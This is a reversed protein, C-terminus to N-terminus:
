ANSIERLEDFMAKQSMVSHDILERAQAVYYSLQENNRESSNKLALEIKDLSETLASNSETFSTMANAFVDGMVTMESANNALEDAAESLKGVESGVHQDFRESINDLMETSTGVLSAIAERQSESSQTLSGALVDLEQMIKQREELLKNDREVNNSIETRLQAIVEAAAKPTESATAILRTMPQELSQGLDDLQKAFQQQLANMSETASEARQEEQSHLSKLDSTLQSSLEDMRSKFSALWTEENKARQEILADSAAILKSFEEQVKLSHQQNDLLIQERESALKEVLKSNEALVAGSKETWTDSVEQTLGKILQSWQEAREKEQIEINEIRQQDSNAIQELLHQAQQQYGDKFSHMSENLAASMHEQAKEQHSVAKEWAQHIQGANESIQENLEDAHKATIELLKGQSQQVQDLVTKSIAEVGDQLVPKLGEGALRGSESLSSQVTELTSQMTNRVDDALTKFSSETTDKFGQQFTEHFRDQKSNLQQGLETGMTALSDAMLQMREAIAPLAQAQAQLAKYTEQRNYNLSFIKLDSHIKADLSQTATVRERRCLTSMLGLMASTAVGAVSTGFALGLGNIPAALGERIAALETSGELAIVAGQLTDVMGVFTGLLGLMVLLGVLYPTVLPAPLGVREGEIRLQVSHQLSGHLRGIWANFSSDLSTGDTSTSDLSSSDLSSSDTSSRDSCASFDPISKLATYLTTTAQHFRLLEMAGIAFVVGIIATIAFALADSGAFELGMSIVSAAGLIFAVGFLIRNM